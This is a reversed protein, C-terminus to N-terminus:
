HHHQPKERTPFWYFKTGPPNMDRFKYRHNPHISRGVPTSTFFWYIAFPVTFTLTFILHRLGKPLQAPKENRLPDVKEWFYLDSHLEIPQGYFKSEGIDDYDDYWDKNYDGICKLNPYDGWGDEEPYPEYDEPILNYKKAAREREELTRPWDGAKLMPDGSNKLQDYIFTARSIHFPGLQSAMKPVLQRTLSLM